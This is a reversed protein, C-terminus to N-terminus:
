NLKGPPLDHASALVVRREEGTWISVMGDPEERSQVGLTAAQAIEERHLRLTGGLRHVVGALLHEFIGVRQSLAVLQGRLFCVEHVDSTGQATKVRLMTGEATKGCVPCPTVDPILPSSVVPEPM